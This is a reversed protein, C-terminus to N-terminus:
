LAKFDLALPKIFGDIFFITGYIALELQVDLPLFIPEMKAVTKTSADSEVM